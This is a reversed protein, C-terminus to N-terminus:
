KKSDAAEMAAELLKVCGRRPRRKAYDLATMGRENTKNLDAGADILMQLTEESKGWWASLMLATQGYKDQLNVNAGGEILAKFCDERDYKVAIMWATLGEENRVNPDAGEEILRKIGEADRWEIMKIIEKDRDMSNRLSVKYMSTKMERVSYVFRKLTTVLSPMDSYRVIDQGHTKLLGELFRSCKRDHKLLPLIPKGWEIFFAVEAGVGHSPEDLYAVMASSKQLADFDRKFVTTSSIDVDKIPDNMDHPLYVSVGFERLIKATEEYLGKAIDLNSSGHLAGSIYFILSRKM